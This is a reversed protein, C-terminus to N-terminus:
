LSFLIHMIKPLCVKYIDLGDVISVVWSMILLFSQWAWLLSSGNFGLAGPCPFNGEGVSEEREMM